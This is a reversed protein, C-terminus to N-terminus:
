GLRASAGLQLEGSLVRKETAMAPDDVRATLMDIAAEIMMNVPQRVSTLAYNEWRGPSAGDFGVVSIDEPVNLKMALRIEDICGIAMMDNACIVADPRDTKTALTRMADRGGDYTFDGIAVVPAEGGLVAIRDRAGSVRQRSVISSGPGSVIAFRRHGAAWLRDVLWREGEAQDCCVSNVAIEDYVRNLFVVPVRRKALQEIHSKPLHAASLVGDVRYQWLQNVVRDADEEHDLTFLLLNLDRSAFLRSLTATLEPNFGLNAVVVAVLNSRKTTLSRAIANPQYGLAAAAKMIRERTQPSVSTGTTFCRSVASQSVGARQAVDYSTVTRGGGRSGVKGDATARRAM